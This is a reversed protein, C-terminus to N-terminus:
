SESENLYNKYFLLPIVTLFFCVAPILYIMSGFGTVTVPTIAQGEQYSMLVLGIGIIGKSIMASLKTIFTNLSFVIGEGRFGLLKESYDIADMLMATGVITTIGTFAFSFGLMILCFPINGSGIFFPIASIVGGLVCASIFINRKTFKKMLFSSVAMGFIMGIVLSLGIFTLLSSDGWVYVVFYMQASQRIGNVMYVALLALLLLKLPKNRTVTRINKRFPIIEKTPQIREKLFFGVLLMLIGGIVAITAASYTYAAPTRDGGFANIIMISCVSAIAAGITGGIKGLTVMTTKGTPNISVVSSIAWIPIDCITYSMGWLVYFIAYIAVPASGTTSFDAFCLITMAALIGPGILLYPRFKGWRTRTRDALMGMMPDNIADWFSAGLMIATAAAAPLGVIDTLFFLIYMAMFNYIMNQGLLGVPYVIKERTTLDANM